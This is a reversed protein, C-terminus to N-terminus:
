VPWVADYNKYLLSVTSKVNVRGTQISGLIDIIIHKIDDFEIEMLKIITM